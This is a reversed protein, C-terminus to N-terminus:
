KTIQNNRLTVAAATLVRGNLLTTNDGVTIAASQGLINGKFVSNAALTTPGVPLWSVNDATAGNNLAVISNVTSDLTLATRFIYVGPGNLTLTGTISIAGAYCYVGPGFTQGGLDIGGAFSVDCTRSNGDTIAAQLDTMAGALIAGSKYNTFGAAQTPDVTQSPAGVDGRILTTGGSNNTISTGALVGFPAARGLIIPNFAPPIAVATVTLLASGSQGGATATINSTGAAIGTAVGTNLVTANAVTGSTWAAAGTVIAKSNDSYTATAVFQQQTGVAISATAPTVAISVLTLAPVTVTTSATKGNFSANMVSSGFTVGTVRGSSAVTAAAPTVSVFSSGATVDATSNDSYTAIVALQRTAAVPVIPSQPTVAISLLTAPNVTLVTSATLTGTTATIQTTGAVKGLALGDAAISATASTASAFASVATVDRTTGDSFSGSVTFQQTAGIAIAPTLPTIAIATLTAPSVTLQAAASKGGFAASINSNGAAIGTSLGTAANVTASAPTASTWAAKASVDQASGDSYTAIATFQQGAGIAVTATAPTVALSSLTAAPLGLIPDRGQDGGGCGALTAMALLGASVLLPNLYRKFLNM